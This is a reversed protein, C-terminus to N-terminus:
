QGLEGGLAQSSGGGVPVFRYGRGPVTQIFRPNAPDPEIKERLRRVLQALSDDRVGRTQVKDEAWVAAILADKECVQAPHAQFYQLLLNEKATLTTTDFEAPRGAMLAAIGDLGAARLEASAPADAWFERLRAQVGPHEALAEAVTPVGAAHAECMARLLAPYAGSAALLATITDDEWAQGTRAAYRGVTWRADSEALPGLWLAHGHFLESLETDSPLPHRTATVYTLRFKHSDRLARLNNFFGRDGEGFLRGSRDLLLSLDLLFCVGKSGPAAGLRRSIAQDLDDLANDGLAAAAPAELPWARELARRMLRLFGAPTPETLRNADVLVFQVGVPETARQAVFSLLNSKGAGSLGVVSVSEGAAVASAMAAVIEARYNSPYAVGPSM